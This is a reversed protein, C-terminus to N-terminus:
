FRLYHMLQGIRDGSLSLRRQLDALNRYVGAITRNQVIAEALSLDIIPINALMEVSATNPNVRGIADISEDDYYCFTLVPELPKLRAVTMGLAAAIDELCYFYVGNQSLEVLSRAQHISLGPLRLWDDVTAQNVDIKIGLSAAIAVEEVSQLRYYPDNLIRRSLPQWQRPIIDGKRIAPALWNFFTM